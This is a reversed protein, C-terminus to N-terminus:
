KNIDGSLWLLYVSAAFGYTVLKEERKLRAIEALKSIVYSFLIGKRLYPLLGPILTWACVFIYWTWFFHVQRYILTSYDELPRIRSNKITACVALFLSVEFATRLIVQGPNFYSLCWFLTCCLETSIVNRHPHQVITLISRFIYALPFVMLGALIKSSLFVAFVYCYMLCISATVYQGITSPYRLYTLSSSICALVVCISYIYFAYEPNTREARAYYAIIHISFFLDAAEEIFVVLYDFCFYSLFIITSASAGIIFPIDSTTWFPVSAPFPILRSLDRIFVLAIIPYLFRLVMVLSTLNMRPLLFLNSARVAFM